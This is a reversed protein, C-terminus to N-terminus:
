DDSIRESHTLTTLLIFRGSSMKTIVDWPKYYYILDGWIMEIAEPLVREGWKM